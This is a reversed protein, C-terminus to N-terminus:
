TSEVWSRSVFLFFIKLYFGFVFMGEFHGKGSQKMVNELWTLDSVKRVPLGQSELISYVQLPTDACSIHSISPLSWTRSSYVFLQFLFSHLVQCSHHSLQPLYYKFYLTESLLYIGLDLVSRSHPSGMFLATAPLFLYEIIMYHGWSQFYWRWAPLFNIESSTALRTRTVLQLAWIVECPRHSHLFNWKM